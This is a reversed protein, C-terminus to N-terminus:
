EAIARTPELAGVISAEDQFRVVVGRCVGVIDGDSPRLSGPLGTVVPLM